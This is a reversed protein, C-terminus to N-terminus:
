VVLIAGYFTGRSVVIKAYQKILNSQSNPSFYTLYSSGDFIVWFPLQTLEYAFLLLYVQPTEKWPM